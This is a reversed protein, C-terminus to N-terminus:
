VCLGCKWPPIAELAQRPEILLRGFWELGNDIMWRPARKVRHALYDFTAGATFVM